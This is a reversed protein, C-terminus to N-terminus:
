NPNPRLRPCSLSRISLRPGGIKGSVLGKSGLNWTPPSPRFQRITRMPGCNPTWRLLRVPADAVVFVVAVRYRNFRTGIPEGCNPILVNQNIQDALNNLTKILSSFVDSVALNPEPDVVIQHRGIPRHSPANCLPSHKVQCM